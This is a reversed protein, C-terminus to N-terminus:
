RGPLQEPAGSLLTPNIPAVCDGVKCPASVPIPFNKIDLTCVGSGQDCSATVPKQQILNVIRMVEARPPM